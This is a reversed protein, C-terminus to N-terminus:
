HRFHRRRTFLMPVRHANCAAIVDADRVSGGPQVIAVIGAAAALEISDPFPFFADSALVAGRAREGAKQIAIRVSDVRSMQGAGVGCLAQERSLTIANSKVHRVVNWGFELERMLAPDLPVETAVEASELRDYVNDRAQALLGCTISRFEVAPPEATLSGVQLLRVNKRWKPRTTLLGIAAASFEPAVIGEVFLEDGCLIVATAEDVTRNMAVISGFASEPDGAFARRCAEAISSDAAAGCPNNHKIVACAPQPIMRVLNLAADFDLVNNYSLEKGNLKRAHVISATPASDLAYMAASQHDNEGYRLALKRRLTLADWPPFPSPDEANAFYRAIAQDYEATHAFAAVMLQRRLLESTNGQTRIQELVEGYQEPSTVVSVHRHNKAAARILSPGGIDIQEIVEAREAGRQVTAAFPYLNVVVLDFLDIAHATAVELDDPQDRRALIGGFIKPHLTKLRGQMMEPFGTYSSIDRVPIGEAELHRRTGGTSYLEIGCDALGQALGSLGLKDSVSLIARQIKVM